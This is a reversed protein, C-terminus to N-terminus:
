NNLLDGLTMKSDDPEYIFKDIDKNQEELILEKMSVLFKKRNPDLIKVKGVVKDGIKYRNELDFIKEVAVESIPIIAEIDESVKAVLKKQHVESIILEIVSGVPNNARLNKWPNDFMEKLSLGIRKRDKEISKVVVEIEENEKGAYDDVPNINDTWSLEQKRLLGEIGKELELFLGFDVVRKIIAKVKKGVPYKEDITDWPNPLIHKVSLKLKRTKEDIDVVMAELLDGEKALENTRKGHNIWSFDKKHIFGDVGEEIEVFVGDPFVRKVIGKVLDEKAYSLNEWPDKRAQKYSLIIKKSKKNLDIIKTDISQGVELKDEIEFFRSYSVEKRPVFGKFGGFDVRVGKTLGKADKAFESIIGNVTDDVNNENFFKLSLERAKDQLFLRRSVYINKGKIDLVKFNYEKDIYSEVEDDNIRKLDLHSIPCIAQVGDITVRLSKKNKTLGLTKAKFSHNGSYLNRIEEKKVYLDAKKKSYKTDGSKTTYCYIKIGDNITPKIKFESIDITIEETWGIDVFVESGSLSVVKGDLLSGPIPEQINQMSKEMEEYYNFAKESM